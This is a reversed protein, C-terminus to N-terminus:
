EDEPKRYRQAHALMRASTLERAAARSDRIFTEFADSPLSAIRRWRHSDQVTIGLERLTSPQPRVGKVSSPTGSPRGGPHRRIQQLLEGARRQTRIHAEAVDQKLEFQEEELLQCSKLAEDILKETANA